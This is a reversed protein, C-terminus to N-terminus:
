RYMCRAVRSRGLAQHTVNPQEGYLAVLVPLEIQYNISNHSTLHHLLLVERHVTRLCRHIIQNAVIEGPAVSECMRCMRNRKVKVIRM